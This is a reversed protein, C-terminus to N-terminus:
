LHRKQFIHCLQTTSYNGKGREWETAGNVKTSSIFLSTRFSVFFKRFLYIEWLSNM